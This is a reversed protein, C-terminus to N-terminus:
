VKVERARSTALSALAQCGRIVSRIVILALGICVILYLYHKPIRLAPTFHTFKSMAVYLNMGFYVVIGVYVAAALHTFAEVLSRYPERQVQNRLVDVAIHSGYKIGLGAGFFTLFVVEIHVLEDLWTIASNFVYRMAVQLFISLGMQLTMFFLAYEEFLSFVKGIRGLANRPM